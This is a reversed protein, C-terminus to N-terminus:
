SPLTSQLNGSSNLVSPAREQSGVNVHNVFCHPDFVLSTSARACGCLCACFRTLLELIDKEYLIQVCVM